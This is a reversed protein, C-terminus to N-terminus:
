CISLEKLDMHRLLHWPWFLGIDSTSTLFHFTTPMRNGVAHFRCQKWFNLIRLMKTIVWLLLVCKLVVTDQRVEPLSGREIGLFYKMIFLDVSLGRTRGWYPEFCCQKSMAHLYSCFHWHLVHVGRGLVAEGCRKGLGISSMPDVCVVHMCVMYVFALVVSM